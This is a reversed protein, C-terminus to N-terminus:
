VSFYLVCFTFHKLSFYLILSVSNNLHRTIGSFADTAGRTASMVESMVPIAGSFIFTLKMHEYVLLVAVCVHEDVLSWAYIRLKCMNLMILFSFFILSQFIKDM